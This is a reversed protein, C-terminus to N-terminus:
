PVHSALPPLVSQKDRVWQRVRLAMTAQGQRYHFAEVKGAQSLRKSMDDQRLEEEELWAVLEDLLKAVDM